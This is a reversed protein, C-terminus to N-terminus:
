TYIFLVLIGGTIIIFLIYSFWFDETAAAQKREPRALSKDAGRYNMHYPDVYTIECSRDSLIGKALCIEVPIGRGGVGKCNPFSSGFTVHARLTWIEWKHRVQGSSVEVSWAAFSDCSSKFKVNMNGHM